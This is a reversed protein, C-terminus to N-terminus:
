EVVKLTRPLHPVYTILGKDRLGVLRCKITSTSKLGVGRMVERICPAYGHESTYAKIFGIIQEDTAVQNAM